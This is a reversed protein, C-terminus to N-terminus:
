KMKYVVGKGSTTRFVETGLAAFKKEDIKMDNVEYKQREMPSIVVYRVAYKRLLARADTVSASRYIAEIHPIRAGVVDASGRWLWEHVWWGAVTPLGTYASIVNYDTYSDGQAELIVPQGTIETNFFQVIEYTDPFEKQLWITGDLQVPRTLQGYYSQVAFIIYPSVLLIAILAASKLGNALKRYHLPIFHLRWVVYPIMLSMMLYAQYGMKFMTNARFHTPYIDKVYFFEPIIILMSGFAFVCLVFIDPAVWMRLSHQVTTDETITRYKQTIWAIGALLVGFFWFLGWLIVLQYLASVQCNGQQVMFPGFARVVDASKGFLMEALPYGCNVGVSSAFPEFFLSFPASFYFFGFGLVALSLVLELTFWHLAFLIMAFFLLYIPGNFANTMYHVAAMFALLFVVPIQAQICKVAFQALKGKGLWAYVTHEWPTEPEGKHKLHEVGDASWRMRWKQIILPALILMIIALSILVFPIDFVHGHLDAVVYSYSPFEHITNPIFRTANPYWYKSYDRLGGLVDPFSRGIMSWQAMLDPLAAWPPVPKENEYGRTFIYIVHWNGAMNVLFAGLLGFLALMRSSLKNKTYHMASEMMTLFGTVLSFTMTMGLAFLNALILNYGVEPAVGSFKTLLAGSLHGFYYYNIYYGKPRTEIDASYWMDLPPMYTSRQISQMFGYDMFKELGRITPEQGRVIVWGFLSVIFLLEVVLVWKLTPINSKIWTHLSVKRGVFWRRHLVFACAFLVVNIATRDFPLIRLVGLSLFIYTLVLIGIAKAFAYGRDPTKPFLWTAIPQFIIGLVFIFFYWSITDIIWNM